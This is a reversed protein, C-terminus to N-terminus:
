KGSKVRCDKRYFAIGYCVVDAYGEEELERVYERNQIQALAESMKAALKVEGTKM